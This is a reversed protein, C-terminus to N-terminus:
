YGRMNQEGMKILIISSKYPILLGYTLIKVAKKRSSSVFLEHFSLFFRLLSSSVSLFLCLRFFICHVTGKQNM